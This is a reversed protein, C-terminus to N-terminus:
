AEEAEKVSPKTLIRQENRVFYVLFPAIKKLCFIQIAVGVDCGLLTFCPGKVSLITILNNLPGTGPVMTELDALM